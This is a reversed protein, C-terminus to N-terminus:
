GFANKRRKDPDDFRVDKLDFHEPDFVGGLWKLMVEYEKHEPDKVIELLNYYGSVGGCDEPPCARKGKICVPYKVKKEKPLIKELEIIHEWDDGFDYVYDAKRNEPSFYDAIKQNWGSLVEEDYDGEPIGIRGREGNEPSTIGFEHLHCDVWGM